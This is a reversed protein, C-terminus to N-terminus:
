QPLLVQAPEAVDELFEVPLRRVAPRHRELLEDGALRQV